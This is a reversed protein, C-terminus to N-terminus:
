HASRRLLIITFGIVKTACPFPMNDCLQKALDKMNSANRGSSPLAAVRVQRRDKLAGAVTQIFNPTIGQKGIQFKAITPNNM